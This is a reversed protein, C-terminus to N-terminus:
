HGKQLFYTKTMYIRTNYMLNVTFFFISHPFWHEAMPVDIYPRHYFRFAGDPEQEEINWSTQFPSTAEKLCRNAEMNWERYIHPFTILDFTNKLHAVEELIPTLLINHCRQANNLWNIVLMSDEFIQIHRVGKEHAFTILMFIALLEAKNNTGEGLSWKLRFSHNETLHLIAGAGCRILDGQAAGDFYGWPYSKDITELRIDRMRQPREMAMFHAIIAM